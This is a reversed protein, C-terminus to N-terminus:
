KFFLKFIKFIFTLNQIVKKLYFMKKGHFGFPLEELDSLSIPSEISFNKAISFPAWIFGKSELFRRQYVCFFGDEHSNTFYANDKLQFKTPAELLRKSRLSFGGNGNIYFAGNKDRSYSKDSDRPIFPAGIYDYNLFKFDWKNKNIIYGDWQVILVHSTKIYKHLEYIVFNSYDKISKIEPIKIISIFNAEFKNQKLPKSTFLITDTSKLIKLSNKLAYITEKIKVDSISVISISKKPLM